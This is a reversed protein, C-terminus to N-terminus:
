VFPIAMGGPLFILSSYIYTSIEKISQLNQWSKQAYVVNNEYLFSSSISLKLLAGQLESDVLCM